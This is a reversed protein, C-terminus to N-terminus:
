PHIDPPCASWFYIKVWDFGAEIGYEALYQEQLKYAEWEPQQVCDYSRNALQVAHILEHLLVSLDRRDTHEWPRVLNIRYRVHDYAGKLPHDVLTSGTEYPIEDGVDCFTLEPPSSRVAAVSYSTALEIWDLLGSVVDEIPLDPPVPEGPPLVCEGDVDRDALISADAAM